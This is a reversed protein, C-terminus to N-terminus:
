EVEQLLLLAEVPEDLNVIALSRVLGQASGVRTIEIRRRDTGVRRRWFGLVRVVVLGDAHRVATPDADALVLDPQDAEEVM